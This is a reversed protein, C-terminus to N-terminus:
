KEVKHPLAARVEASPVCFTLLSHSRYDAAQKRLSAAAELCHERTLGPVHHAAQGDNAWSVLVLILTYTNM